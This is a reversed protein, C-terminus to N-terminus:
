GKSLTMYKYYENCECDYKWLYPSIKGTIRDKANIMPKGCINCKM